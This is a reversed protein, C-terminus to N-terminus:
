DATWVYMCNQIVIILLLTFAGFYALGCGIRSLTRKQDLVERVYGFLSAAMGTPPSLRRLVDWGQDDSALVWEEVTTRPTVHQCYELYHSLFKMDSSDPRGRNRMNQSWWSAFACTIERDGAKKGSFTAYDDYHRIIKPCRSEYIADAIAILVAAFYLLQWSFPLDVKLTLFHRLASSQVTGNYTSIANAAIPILLLWLYSTKLIKSKGLRGLATWTFRHTRQELGRHIAIAHTRLVVVYMARIM